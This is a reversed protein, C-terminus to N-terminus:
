LRALTKGWRPEKLIEAEEGEGGCGKFGGYVAWKRSEREEDKGLEGKLSGGGGRRM